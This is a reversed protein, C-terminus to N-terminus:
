DTVLPHLRRLTWPSVYQVGEIYGVNCELKFRLSGERSQHALVGEISDRSPYDSLIPASNNGTQFKERKFIQCARKKASLPCIHSYPIKELM